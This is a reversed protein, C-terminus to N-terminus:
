LIKWANTWRWFEIRRGKNQQKMSYLLTLILYPLHFLANEQSNNV